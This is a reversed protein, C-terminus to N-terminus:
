RIKFYGKKLEISCVDIMPQGIPDTAQIDGHQGLASGGTKSRTKAMAGSGPTRWFIDLRTGGSWWLSLEKSVEREFQSGKSSRAM